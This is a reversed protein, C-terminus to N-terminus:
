VDDGTTRGIQTNAPVRYPSPDLAPPRREILDACLEVSAPALVLGNRYHGTDLFLGSIEPHEGIFPVGNPSGPRLGAWHHEIPCDRLVPYRRRAIEALEDRAAQTVRKDYGDTEVTSGFLVRGDRRPIAYRDERLYMHRITGSPARFLIMQGRVPFVPLGHVLQSSWSGACVVVADAQHTGRNSRVGIIRGSDAMLNTVRTDTLVRIHLRELETRLARTLRPNRAQAIEPFWLADKPPERLGPELDNLEVAALRHATVGNRRVWDLAEDSEGFTDILLGSCTWEPDIGTHERLQECLKPYFQQSRFALQNVADPYRWPYLPSLIGGGAWSSETGPRNREILLVDAGRLTLERASLM